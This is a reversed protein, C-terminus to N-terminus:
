QKIKQVLLKEKTTKEGKRAELIEEWVKQADEVGHKKLIEMTDSLQEKQKKKVNTEKTEILIATGQHKLGIQDRARLFEAIRTEVEKEKEKLKKRRINLLKIESRISELEQVDAKISM